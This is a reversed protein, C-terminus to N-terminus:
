RRFDSRAALTREYYFEVGCWRVPKEIGRPEEVSKRALVDRFAAKASAEDLRLWAPPCEVPDVLACKLVNTEYLLTSGGQARAKFQAVPAEAMPPPAAPDVIIQAAHLEAATEAEERQARAETEAARRKEALYRALADKGAKEGTELRLSRPSLTERVIALMAKPLKSVEDGASKVARKGAIVQGLMDAVAAQQEDSTVVIGKLSDAAALAARVTPTEVGRLTLDHALAVLKTQNTAIQLDTSTM